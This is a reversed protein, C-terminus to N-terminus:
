FPVDDSFEDDFTKAVTAKGESPPTKPLISFSMTPANEASNPDKKWGNLWFEEGNVNIYGSYHSHTEKTRNKNPWIAGRNLNSVTM